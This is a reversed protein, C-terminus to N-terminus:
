NRLGGIGFSCTLYVSPRDGQQRSVKFYDRDLVNNMNLGIQRPHRWRRPHHVPPCRKLPHLRPHHPGVPPHHPLPRPRRAPQAAGHLDHQAHRRPATRGHIAANSGKIIEFRNVNSTGYRGIRGFGDRLQSPSSFSRLTFDSAGSLRTFSGLQPLASFCGSTLVNVRYPLDISRTAGRTGSMTEAAAYGRDGDATVNFDSLHIADEAPRAAPCSLILPRPRTM